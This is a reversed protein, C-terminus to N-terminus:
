SKLKEAIKAKSEERRYGRSNACSRSCFYKNKKKGERYKISIITSCKNCEVNEKIYKGFRKAALKKNNESLKKFYETNDKHKWRIHNAKAQFTEFEIDCDKCIYTKM